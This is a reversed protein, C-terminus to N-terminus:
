NFLIDKYYARTPDIIKSVDFGFVQMLTIDTKYMGKGDIDFRDIYLSTGFFFMPDKV